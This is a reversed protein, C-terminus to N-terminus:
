RIILFHDNKWFFDSIYDIKKFVKISIRIGGILSSYLFQMNRKAKGLSNRRCIFTLILTVPLQSLEPFLSNAEPRQARLFM